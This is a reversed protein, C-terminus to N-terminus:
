MPHPFSATSYFWPQPFMIHLPVGLAEAVHIHGMTPPNSIIVDAIFPKADPDDPDVQTVAPWCSKIIQKVMKTKEPLLGPNM